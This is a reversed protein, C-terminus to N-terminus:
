CSSIVLQGQLGVRKGGRRRGVEAVSRLEAACGAQLQWGENERKYMGAASLVAAVRGVARVNKLETLRQLLKNTIYEEEQEVQKQQLCLLSADCLPQLHGCPAWAAALLLLEMCPPSTCSSKGSSPEAGQHAQGGRAATCEEAEGRGVAPVIRRSSLTFQSGHAGGLGDLKCGVVGLTDESGCSVQERLQVCRAM